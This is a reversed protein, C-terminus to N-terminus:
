YAPHYWSPDIGFSKWSVTFLSGRKKRECAERLNEGEEQASDEEPTSGMPASGIFVVAGDKIRLEVAWQVVMAPM